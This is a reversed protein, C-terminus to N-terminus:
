ATLPILDDGAFEINNVVYLVEGSHEVVEEIAYQGGQMEDILAQTTLDYQIIAYEDVSVIVESGVALLKTDGASTTFIAESATGSTAPGMGVEERSRRIVDVEERIQSFNPHFTDVPLDQVLFPFDGGKYFHVRWDIAAINDSATMIISWAHGHQGFDIIQERDTGSLFPACGPPHSHIICNWEANEEKRGSKMLERRFKTIELGDMQFYTHENHQPFIRLDTAVFNDGIKQVRCLGGIENPSNQRAYEAFEVMVMPHMYFKGAMFEANM